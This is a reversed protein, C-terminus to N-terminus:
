QEYQNGRDMLYGRAQFLSSRVGRLSAPPMHQIAFGGANEWQQCYKIRDDILICSSPDIKSVFSGKDGSIHMHTIDNILIFNRNIWEVKGDVCAMSGEIPATMIHVNELGVLAICHDMLETAGEAMPISAWWEQSAKSVFSMLASNVRKMWQTREGKADKIRLAEEMWERTLPCRDPGQYNVMRKISKSGYTEGTELIEQLAKLTAGNFDVLVGDMDLWITEQGM